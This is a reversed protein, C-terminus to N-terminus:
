CRAPGPWGLALSPCIEEALHRERVQCGHPCCSPPRLTQMSQPHQPSRPPTSPHQLRQVSGHGMTPAGCTDNVQGVSLDLLGKFRPVVQCSVLAPDLIVPTLLLADRQQLSHGDWALEMGTCLSSTPLVM